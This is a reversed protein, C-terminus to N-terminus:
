LWSGFEMGDWSVIHFIPLTTVFLRYEKCSATISLINIRANANWFLFFAMYWHGTAEGMSSNAEGFRKASWSPYQIPIRRDNLAFTVHLGVHFKHNTFTKEVNLRWFLTTFITLQDPRPRQRRPGRGHYVVPVITLVASVTHFLRGDSRRALLM